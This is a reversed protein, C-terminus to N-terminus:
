LFVCKKGPHWSKPKGDGDDDDDDDDDDHDHVFDDGLINSTLFGLRTDDNNPDSSPSEDDWAM